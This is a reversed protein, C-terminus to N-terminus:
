DDHAEDILALAACMATNAPHYPDSNSQRRRAWTISGDRFGKDFEQVAALLADRERTMATLKADLDIATQRWHTRSTNLQAFISDDEPEIRNDETM